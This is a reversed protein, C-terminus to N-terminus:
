FKNDKLQQYFNNALRKTLPRLAEYSGAFKFMMEELKQINLADDQGQMSLVNSVHESKGSAFYVQGGQEPRTNDKYDEIFRKKMEKIIQIQTDIEERKEIGLYTKITVNDLGEKLFKEMTALESVFLAIQDTDNQDLYYAEPVQMTIAQTQQYGSPIEMNKDRLYQLIDSEVTQILESDSVDNLEDTLFKQMQAHTLVLYKKIEDDLPQGKSIMAKCEGIAEIADYLETDSELAIEGTWSDNIDVM